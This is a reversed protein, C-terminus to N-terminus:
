SRSEGLREVPRITCVRLCLAAGVFTAPIGVLATRFLIRVSIKVPRGIRTRFFGNTIFHSVSFRSSFCFNSAEPTMGTVYTQGVPEDKVALLRHIQRGDM